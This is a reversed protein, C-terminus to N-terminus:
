LPDVGCDQSVRNHTATVGRLSFTDRIETGRWSKSEITLTAGQRLARVLDIDDDPFSWATENETHMRFQKDGITLIPQSDAWFQFGAAFSVVNLRNQANDDNPRHTVHLWVAGRRQYNGEMQKPASVIFCVSGGAAPDDYKFARWDGSEELLEPDQAMSAGLPLLTIFIFSIFRRLM